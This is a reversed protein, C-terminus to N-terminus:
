SAPDRASAAMDGLPRHIALPALSQEFPPRLIGAETVFGSVVEAPTVDFDEARRAEHWEMMTSGPAFVYVPISGRAAADAIGYAGPEDLVAGTSTVGLAGLLVIDVKHSGVLGAVSSDPVVGHGVGSQALEWATRVGILPARGQAVWVHVPLGVGVAAHLASAATGLPGFALGGVPGHVLVRLRKRPGLEAAQVRLLDLGAAVVQVLRVLEEAAILNAEARLADALDASASSTPNAHKAAWTRALAVMRDLASRLPAVWPAADGILAADSEVAELLQATTAVAALHSEWAGDEAEERGAWLAVSCALGHSGFAAISGAGQVLGDRIATAVATASQCTVEIVAGPFRRQDLAVVGDHEFRYPCPIATALHGDEGGADAPLGLITQLDALNRDALDDAFAPAVADILSPAV